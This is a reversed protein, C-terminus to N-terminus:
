KVKPYDGVNISNVQPYEDKQIDNYAKRAEADQQLLSNLASVSGAAMKNDLATKLVGALRKAGPTNGQAIRDVADYMKNYGEITGKIPQKTMVRGAKGAVQLGSSLLLSSIAPISQYSSLVASLPVDQVADIGKSGVLAGYGEMRQIMEKKLNEIDFQFPTTGKRQAEKALIKNYKELNDLVAYIDKAAVDGATSISGGARMKVGFMKMLAEKLQPDKLKTIEKATAEPDTKFQSIILEVLKSTNHFNKKAEILDPAKDLLIKNFLEKTSPGGATGKTGSFMSWDQENLGFKEMYKKKDKLIEKFINLARNVEEVSSKRKSWLEKGDETIIKNFLTNEFEDLIKKPPTRKGLTLREILEQYERKGGLNKIPDVNKELINNIEAGFKNKLEILKSSIEQAPEELRKLVELSGTEEGKPGFASGTLNLPKGTRKGSELKFAEIWRRIIPSSEIYETIPKEAKKLGAGAVPIATGLLGGYLAAEKLEPLAEPLQGAGIDKETAGLQTVASTLAGGLSGAAMKGLLGAGMKGAKVAAGGPILMGGAFEGIGTTIPYEKQMQKYAQEYEKQIEQYPKTGMRASYELAALAEDGFEAIGGQVLSAAGAGLGGLIDEFTSKERPTTDLGKELQAFEADSPMPLDSPVAQAGASVSPQNAMSRELELLEEETPMVLGPQQM